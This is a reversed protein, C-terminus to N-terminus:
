SQAIYFV